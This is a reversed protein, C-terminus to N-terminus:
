KFLINNFRDVKFQMFFMLFYSFFNIEENKKKKRKENEQAAMEMENPREEELAKFKTENQTNRRTL